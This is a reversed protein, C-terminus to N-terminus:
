NIYIYTMCIFLLTYKHDINIDQNKFFNNNEKLGQITHLKTLVMKTTEVISTRRYNITM